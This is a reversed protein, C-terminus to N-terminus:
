KLTGKLIYINFFFAKDARTSMFTFPLEYIGGKHLSSCHNPCHAVSPLKVASLGRLTM